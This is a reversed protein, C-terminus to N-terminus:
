IGIFLGYDVATLWIDSKDIDSIFINLIGSIFSMILMGLILGLIIMAFAEVCSVVLEKVKKGTTKNESTM